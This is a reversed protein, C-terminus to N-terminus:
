KGQLIHPDFKLMSYFIKMLTFYYKKVKACHVSTCKKLKRELPNVVIATIFGGSFFSAFRVETRALAVIHQSKSKIEVKVSKKKIKVKKWNKKSGKNQVM